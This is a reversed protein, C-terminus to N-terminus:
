DIHRYLINGAAILVSRPTLSFLLKAMRMQIHGARLKKPAPYRLYTLTSRTGGFRDKFTLLGENDWDTRGMDFELLGDEKAEQIAEWMLLQM